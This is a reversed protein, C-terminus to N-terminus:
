APPTGAIPLTKIGHIFPSLLWAPVETAVIDLRATCEEFMVSIERRALNAGLCFHAGGGGLGIHPNPNRALDFTRPNAFKSEDRNASCCWLTVKDGSGNAVQRKAPTTRRKLTTNCQECTFTSQNLPVV